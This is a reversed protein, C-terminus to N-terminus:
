LNFGARVNYSGNPPPATTLRKHKKRKCEPCKIEKPEKLTPTWMEYKNQCKPHLCKYYHTMNGRYVWFGTSATQILM